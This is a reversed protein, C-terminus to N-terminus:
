LTDEPMHPCRLGLDAQADACDSWPRRQGSVSDNSVISHIFLSWIGPHTKASSTIFRFRYMKRMRSSMKEGPASRIILTRIWYDQWPRQQNSAHEIWETCHIQHEICIHASLSSESLIFIRLGIQTRTLFIYWFTRIRVILSLHRWLLWLACPCRFFILNSVEWCVCLTADVDNCRRQLTTVNCRRQLSMTIVNHTQQAAIGLWVAFVRISNTHAPDSEACKATPM